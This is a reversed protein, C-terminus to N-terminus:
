GPLAAPAPALLVREAVEERFGVFEPATRLERTRPEDALPVPADFVLRGPRPSMVLVRTGLLV